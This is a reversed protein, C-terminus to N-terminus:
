HRCCGCSISYALKQCKCAKLSVVPSRRSGEKKGREREREEKRRAKSRKTGGGKGEINGRWGMDFGRKANARM